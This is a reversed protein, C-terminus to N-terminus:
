EFYYVRAEYPRLLFSSIDVVDGYNALLCKSKKNKFEDMLDFKQNKDSFNTIVLLSKDEYVRSYVYLNKSKKYYENYKGNRVM